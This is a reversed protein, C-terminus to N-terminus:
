PNVAVATSLRRNLVKSFVRSFVLPGFFPFLLLYVDFEDEGFTKTARFNYRSEEGDTVGENFFLRVVQAQIGGLEIIGTSTV